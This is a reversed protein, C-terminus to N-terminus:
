VPTVVPSFAVIALLVMAFSHRLGDTANGSSMVGAVLGNGVGMVVAALLYFVRYEGMSLQDSSLGAIGSLGAALSAQGQGIVAPIFTGYLVLAVGLFVLFTIYVIGTYLGMTTRRDDELNKRERADRAAAMLVDNVSGGSRSAENILSVARRVLPTRVRDALRELAEEFPVHWALQDRMKEIEPTLAGYEGRAAIQVSSALTLGAKRSAAIDRLFDPFREELRQTRKHRHAIYFGYPGLGVLMGLAFFDIWLVPELELLGWELGVSAALLFCAGAAAASAGLITNEHRQERSARIRFLPPKEDGRKVLIAAAVSGLLAVVVFATLGLLGLNSPIDDALGAMSTGVGLLIVFVLFLLGFALVAPMVTSRQRSRHAALEAATTDRGTMVDMLPLARDVYLALNLFLTAALLLFPGDREVFRAVGLELIGASAVASAFLALAGAGVLALAGYVGEVGSRPAQSRRGRLALHHAGAHTAAAVAGVVATLAPLILSSQVTFVGVRRLLAAVLFLAAFVTLFSLLMATTRMATAWEHEEVPGMRGPAALGRAELYRRAGFASALAAVGAAMIWTGIRVGELTGVVTAAAGAGMLGAGLAMAVSPTADRLDERCPPDRCVAAAWTTVARARAWVRARLPVRPRKPPRPPLILEPAM